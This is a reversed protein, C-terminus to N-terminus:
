ASPQEGTEMFKCLITLQKIIVCLGSQNERAYRDEIPSQQEEPGGYGAFTAM